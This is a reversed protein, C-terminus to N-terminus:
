ELVGKLTSVGIYLVVLSVLRFTKRFHSLAEMLNVGNRLTCWYWGLLLYLSTFVRDHRVVM